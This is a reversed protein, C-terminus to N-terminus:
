GSKMGPYVIGYPKPWALERFGLAEAAHMTFYPDSLHTRALAVLDARGAALITNVQDSTTINGVALTPMRADNRVRDSFPTQYMRGYIQPRSEPTTQGTSIDALDCGHEKLMRAVALTEEEAIGNELWDTASLRASMPREKPWIRRVADFVELPYRMRADIEGGYADARQNTLPSIFSALLYGHAMHVELMDFDADIAYRTAQEYERVVRDMDARDMAKPAISHPYYPLASASLLPWGGETLPQDMGEWMLKSAGKRGAHGLQLCIKARSQAHVFDTIRRWAHVHEPAYMGACGLTIRADAAVNTMETVVLGAGGLARSGLHVLHFDDPLGDRASYMCMPSVVVRNETVMERLSFPAFMPPANPLARPGQERQYADRVGEVYASDRLKLNEYGIKKTRTMLRFGFAEPTFHMYRQTNEFFLLSDQAAAQTKEVTLRRAGEYARLAESVNSGPAFDSLAEDLAIADEMAMKTGSGISFHATHAADGLLVV